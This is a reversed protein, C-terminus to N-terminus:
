RREGSVWGSWGQDGELDQTGEEETQVGGLVDVGDEVAGQGKGLNQYVPDNAYDDEDGREM